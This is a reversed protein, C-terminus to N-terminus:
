EIEGIHNMRSLTWLLERGENAKKKTKYPGIVAYYGAEKCHARFLDKRGRIFRFVEGDGIWWEFSVYSM